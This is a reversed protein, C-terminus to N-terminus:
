PKTEMDTIAAKAAEAVSVGKDFNCKERDNLLGRLRPLAEKAGLQELAYIALVRMSPDKDNLAEILPGVARKDGIDGLSTAVRWNVEKDHLLPVLIPVARPDKLDGFLCVAYYRDQRIQLQVDYGGNDTMGMGQVEPRASRDALIAKIVEFGRDDGLRAFIFAANGRLHRDQDTLLGALEPLVGTDHLTVIKQAVEFQQWFVKSNKFELVLLSASQHELSKSPDSITQAFEQGGHQRLLEAEDKYGNVVAYHLPTFGSKDKANVDAKDALLWEAMDPHDNNAAQHLPTSGDNGKANVDAGKALLFEVMDKHGYVVAYYLPTFGQYDKANIDAKDALFWEAMDPHDNNAAQHLPTSGHNDKANVDAGHALLLKVMGEYGMFVAEHLPTYGDEKDKVNIDAGHALLLEVTEKRGLEVAGWLPTIGDNGKADVEAGHSLLLETIEIPGYACAANHLPTFNQNDRANAKAGQALLFEVIKLTDKSAHTVVHFLPTDGNGDKSFVLDPNADVLAEIKKLNNEKAAEDIEAVDHATPKSRTLCAVALIAILLVGLLSWGYAGRAFRGILSFRRKFQDKDELIGVLTPLSHRQNFHELLKILMLGYREKEAEGTRSLVLADTAPERDIRIRRFAFWLVPNFWHLIQLLAILAQVIVDGRKLHGLEHLFIFRLEHADFKGRVDAPLLLTPRFLGMIAPSQVQGNEILRIARCIGLEAKAEAFLKLLEPDVIVPSNAVQRAFRRNVIWTLVLLTSAGILWLFTLLTFYSFPYNPIVTPAADQPSPYPKGSFLPQWPETLPTVLRAPPPPAFQFLSLASEPLAPLVLRVLVLLWLAYRWRPNLRSGLTKQILLVFLALVSAQWSATLLWAFIEELERLFPAIM